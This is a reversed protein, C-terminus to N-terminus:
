RIPRVQSGRVSEPGFRRKERCEIQVVRGEHITVEVSGYQIAAIAKLIEQEPSRAPQGEAPSSASSAESMMEGPM